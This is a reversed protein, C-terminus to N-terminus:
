KSNAACWAAARSRVEDATPVRTETMWRELEDKRFFNSNGQKYYPIRKEQTLHYLRNKSIGLFEAAEAMDFVSKSAAIILREINALRQEISLTTEM